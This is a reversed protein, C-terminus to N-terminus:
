KCEYKNKKIVRNIWGRLYKINNGKAAISNYYRIRELKYNAIFLEKKISKNIVSISDKLVNVSDKLKTCQQTVSDVKNNDVICITDTKYVYETNTITKCSYLNLIFLTIINFFTLIIIISFYTKNRM